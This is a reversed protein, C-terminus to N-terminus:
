LAALVEKTTRVRAIKPFVTAFPHEHEELSFASIADEVLIQAYGREHAARATSEIAYNTAIGAMILQGIKRRRLQLELDTGYFGGWNYKTVIVEDARPALGQALAFGDAAIEFGPLPRDCPPALQLAQRYQEGIRIFIVPMSKARAASLLAIARALVDHGHHPRLPLEVVFRQLDVLLLASRHGALLEPASETM